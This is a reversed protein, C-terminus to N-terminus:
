AVAEPSSPGLPLCVTVSTGGQPATGIGAEGGWLLVRERIGMLGFSRGGDLEAETIGRGNDHVELVLEAGNVRLHVDVRTAQAHRAVNTLAEQLIRFVDTARDADLRIQQQPVDLDCQVGTRRAFQQVAWEVAAALGMDDLVAPRLDTALTRVRDIMADILAAMGATRPELQARQPTPVCEKLSFLDMKLATLAQGLEDHIERAIHTREKERASRLRAAFDRLQARSRLLAEQARKGETMDHAINSAAVITGRADKIPSVSVSVAVRTGDKRIRM